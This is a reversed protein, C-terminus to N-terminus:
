EEVELVFSIGTKEMNEGSWTMMNNKEDFKHANHSLIKGSYKISVEAPADEGSIKCSAIKVSFTKNNKKIEFDSGDAIPYISGPFNKIEGTIIANCKFDTKDTLETKGNELCWSDAMERGSNIYDNF